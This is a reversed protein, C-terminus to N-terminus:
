CAPPRGLATGSLAGRGRGPDGPGRAGRAGATSVVRGRALFAGHSALLEGLQHCLAAEERLQGSNQAKAKAKSLEVSVVLGPPQAERGPGAGPGRM